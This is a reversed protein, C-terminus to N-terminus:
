RCARWSPTSAKIRLNGNVPWFAEPPEIYGAGRGRPLRKYLSFVKEGDTRTARLVLAWPVGLRQYETAFNYAYILSKMGLYPMVDYEGANKLSM